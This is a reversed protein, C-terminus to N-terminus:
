KLKEFPLTNEFVAGILEVMRQFGEDTPHTGDQTYEVKDGTAFFASGDIFYVNRDGANWAKLYSEMVVARRAFDAENYYFDPRTIMYYPIDPHKARITEYVKYHNDALREACSRNHDYDCVFAGIELESMHEVLPVDGRCSGAFGLNIFDFDFQRSLIASYAKGSRSAAAGQTISSGYFLIPKTYTYPAHAKLSADAPLGIEMEEINGYCPFYLTFANEGEPLTFSCEWLNETGEVPMLMKGVVFKSGRATDHYLDVGFELMLSARVGLRFPARTVRVTLEKADTCFRVRGGATNLYLGEAIHVNCAKAVHEPLRRFVGAEEPKYLGHISFPPKKVNYFTINGM